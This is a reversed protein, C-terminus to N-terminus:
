SKLSAGTARTRPQTTPSDDVTNRTCWYGHIADQSPLRPSQNISLSRGRDNNSDEEEDEMNSNNRHNSMSHWLSTRSMPIRSTSKLSLKTNGTAQLRTRPRHLPQRSPDSTPQSKPKPMITTRTAPLLRTNPGAQHSLRPKTHQNSLCPTPPISPLKFTDRSWVCCLHRCLELRSARPRALPERGFYLPTM